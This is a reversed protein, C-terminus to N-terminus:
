LSATTLTDAEDVVLVVEAVGVDLDGVLDDSRGDEEHLETLVCTVDLDLDDTILVAVGDGEVSTVAGGLAAELLDELLSRGDDDGAFGEALHLAGGLAEGLGDAVDSGTGDLVEEVGVGAVVEEELQVGTQLDLMGDGLADGAGVEGGDLELNGHADGQVVDGGDALQVAHVVDVAGAGDVEEDVLVLVDLRVDDGGANGGLIGVLSELGGRSGDLADLELGGRVNPAVEADAGIAADVLKGIRLETVKEGLARGTLRGALGEDQGQLLDLDAALDARGDLVEDLKQLGRVELIVGDIGGPQVTQDLLLADVHLLRGVVDDEAGCDELGTLVDHGLSGGDDLGELLALNGGSTDGADDGEVQLNGVLVGLVEELNLKGGGIDVAEGDVAAGNVNRDSNGGVTFKNGHESSLGVADITLVLRKAKAKREIADGDEHRGDKIRRLETGVDSTLDDAVELVVAGINFHARGVNLDLGHLHNHGDLGGLRTLDSMSHGGTGDNGSTVEKGRKLELVGGLHLLDEVELTSKVDGGNIDLSVALVSGVVNKSSVLAVGLGGSLSGEGIGGVEGGGRGNDDIGEVLVKANLGDEIALELIIDNTLEGLVVRSGEFGNNVDVAGVAKLVRAVLEDKAQETLDLGEGAAEALGSKRIIQKGSKILKGVECSALITLDGDSGVGDDALGLNRSELNANGVKALLKKIGLGVDLGKGLAGSERGSNVKKDRKERILIGLDTGSSGLGVDTTDVTGVADDIEAGGIDIATNLAVPREAEGINGLVLTNDPVADETNDGVSAVEFGSEGLDKVIETALEIRIGRGARRHVNDVDSKDAAAIWSSVLLGDDVVLALKGHEADSSDVGDERNGLLVRNVVGVRM